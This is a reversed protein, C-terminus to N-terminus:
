NKVVKLVRTGEDTALRLHYVGKPYTTLDYDKKATGSELVRGDFTLLEYIGVVSVNLSSTGNTPIPSVYLEALKQENMGVGFANIAIELTDSKGKGLRIAFVTCNQNSFFASISDNPATYLISDNSLPFLGGRIKWLVSDIKSSNSLKYVGSNYPSSNGIIQSNVFPIEITFITDTTTQACQGLFYTSDSGATHQLQYIGSTLTSDYLVELSDVLGTGDTNYVLKNIGNPIVASNYNLILETLNKSISSSYVPPTFTLITGDYLQPTQNSFTIPQNAVLNQAVTIPIDVNVYGIRFPTNAVTDLVFNDIRYSLVGVQNTTPLCSIGNLDSTLNFPYLTDSQVPNTHSYGSAYDVNLTSTQKAPKLVAYISDGDFETYNTSIQNIVGSTMRLVGLNPPAVSNDFGRVNPNELNLKAELYFGQGASSNLGTIGPPRCCLEWSFKTSSYSPITIIAEYRNVGVLFTGGCNQSLLQFEPQALTLTKSTNMATVGGITSFVTIPQTSGLTVGSMERYLDLHVKYAGNNIGYNIYEYWLQGGLIHSGFSSVSLYILGLFTFLQKKIM